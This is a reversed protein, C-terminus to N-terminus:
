YLSGNCIVEVLTYNSFHLKYHYCSPQFFNQGPKLFRSSWVLTPRGFLISESTMCWAMFAFRKVWGRITTLGHLRIIQSFVNKLSVGIKFNESCFSENKSKSSFKLVYNFFFQLKQKRVNWLLNLIKYRIIVNNPFYHGIKSYIKNKILSSLLYKILLFIIELYRHM